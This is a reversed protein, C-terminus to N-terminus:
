VESSVRDKPIRSPIHTTGTQMAVSVISLKAISIIGRNSRILLIHLDKDLQTSVCASRHRKTRLGDFTLM